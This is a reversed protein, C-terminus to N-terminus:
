GVQIHEVQLCLCFRTKSVDHKLYFAPCHIIDLITITFIANPQCSVLSIRHALKYDRLLDSLYSICLSLSVYHLRGM